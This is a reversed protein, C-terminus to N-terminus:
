FNRLYRYNKKEVIEEYLTKLNGTPTYNLLEKGNSKYFKIDEISIGEQVLDNLHQILRFRSNEEGFSIDKIDQIEKSIITFQIIGEKFPEEHLVLEGNVLKYVIDFPRGTSKDTIGCGNSGGGFHSYRIGGSLSIEQKEENLEICFYPRVKLLNVSMVGLEKDLYNSVLNCEQRNKYNSTEHNKINLEKIQTLGTKEIIDKKIIDMNKLVLEKLDM